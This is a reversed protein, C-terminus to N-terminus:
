VFGVVPHPKYPAELEAIDEATLKVKLSEVADTLHHEKTVGVIPAVVGPKSLVWALAVQAHQQTAGSQRTRQASVARPLSRASAVSGTSFRSPTVSRQRGKRSTAGRSQSDHPGSPAGCLATARPPGRQAGSFRWTFRGSVRARRRRRQRLASRRPPCARTSRYASRCPRRSPVRRAAAAAAM